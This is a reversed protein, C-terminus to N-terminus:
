VSGRGITRLALPSVVLLELVAAAAMIPLLAPSPSGGARLYEFIVLPSGALILGPISVALVWGAGAYLNTIPLGTKGARWFLLGFELVAAAAVAPLEALAFFAFTGAAGLTRVAATTLGLVLAASAGYIGLVMAIKGALLHDRPIPLSRTYSFGFVEIAFFAPAFFTALLASSAVAALGVSFIQAPGPSGLFSWLGIAGADLLPLLILLAFGPTRSAVRLDKRLIAFPIAEPYLRAHGAAVPAAPDVATSRGYARPAEFVWRTVPVLLAVYAAALFLAVPAYTDPSVQGPTYLPLAALPFPFTSLLAALETSPGNVYLSNLASFFQPSFTVFGFLAFAPLTWLVLYLWRFATEARGGRSGIIRTVYFRGTALALGVAVIVAAIAGPLIALAAWVSGLAIGVVLPTVVLVTIIPADFLRFTVMLAARDLTREDVPMTELFPQVKSGFLTPLVQLGTWWVLAMDLVLLAAIVSTDYLGPPLSPAAVSRVRGDLLFPVVLAVMALLFSILLKSQLVRRLAISAEPANRETTSNGSRLGYIAQFAVETYMASSLRRAEGWSM